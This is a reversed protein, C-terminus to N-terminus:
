EYRLAVMPDVRAARRAPIYSALLAATSVVLAVAALVAPSHPSVGYLLSSVFRAAFWAGLLGTFIGACALRMSQGIVMALVKGHSAGLAIRIGIERTRLVTAYTIVGYIGIWVLILALGGFGSFAEVNFRRSTTSDSLVSEMTRVSQVVAQGDVRAVEQRLAGALPVLSNRSRVVLTMEGPAMVALSGAMQASCM